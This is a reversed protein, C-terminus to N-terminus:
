DGNPGDHCTYCGVVTGAALTRGALTRTAFTRSLATGRFDAGHCPACSSLHGEAQDQHAEVWGGGVPHMGHPGGLGNAPPAQHCAGCEGILGAHGQLENAAVDDNANGSWIAHTSGHCAECALGGHGKSKRYLKGPQEAFRSAAALIPSASPDGHVFANLFRIGDPALPPASAVTPRAVADGAHCSQCRPLDLWPRRAKGDNAGDVSGGALLPAGGGVAAMGGHCNQCDVKTTMAGRLCQTTAGPHCQYCAQAPASPVAGGPAVPADVLGAMKDAHFAHMVSSMTGHGQQRTSPGTGALDLAPSYHCSACLVPPQLSTGAKADHLILVNRRSQAELDPDSSWARAGAPAAAKGTAIGTFVAAAVSSRAM